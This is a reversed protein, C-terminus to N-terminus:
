SGLRARYSPLDSRVYVNAGPLGNTLVALSVREDLLRQVAPRLRDVHTKM